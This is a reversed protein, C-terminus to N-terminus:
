FIEKMNPSLCNSSVKYMETALIKANRKYISVSTEKERLEKFLSKQDNYIIGLCIEHLRM